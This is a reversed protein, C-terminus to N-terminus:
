IVWEQLIIRGTKMILVLMLSGWQQPRNCSLTTLFSDYSVERFGKKLGMNIDTTM